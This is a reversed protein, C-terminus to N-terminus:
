GDTPGGPASSSATRSAPSAVVLRRDRKFHRNYDAFDMYRWLRRNAWRAMDTLAQVTWDFRPYPRKHLANLKMYPQVHPEGGHDIVERIRAMCAERPENGILVYVRKKKPSEAKLMRLCRLVDDREGTEDYAFRWPGRNIPKWLAYVDETFTKPEFGSNADLLPVGSAQYRTVIHRQYDFPLASLNNDCLIPRVPFDPLLTFERGEMKPVICFWCGVPCGRSAFTAQPNHKTVADPYDRAIEAVDALFKRRTFVGPGGAVVHKGARGWALALALAMPLKWTFAVSLYITDGERWQALGDVPWTRAAKM